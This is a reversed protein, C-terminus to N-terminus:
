AILGPPPRQAGAHSSFPPLRYAPRPLTGSVHSKSAIRTASVHVHPEPQSRFPKDSGARQGRFSLDCWRERSSSAGDSSPGDPVLRALPSLEPLEHSRPGRLIPDTAMPVRAANGDNGLSAEKLAIGQDAPVTVSMGRGHCWRNCKPSSSASATCVNASGGQENATAAGGLDNERVGSLGRSPSPGEIGVKASTHPSAACCEALSSACSCIRTRLRVAAFVATLGLVMAAALLVAELPSSAGVDPTVASTVTSVPDPIDASAALALPPSM